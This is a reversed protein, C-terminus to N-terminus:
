SPGASVSALLRSPCRHLLRLLLPQPQSTQFPKGCVV